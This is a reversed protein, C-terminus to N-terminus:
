AAYRLNDVFTQLCVNRDVGAPVIGAMVHLKRTGLEAAYSIAHDVSKRFELQRGPLCAMGREGNAWDGAPCNFMVSYLRSERLCRGLEAPSHEYPFLFEIGKFGADAAASFRDLFPVENFM